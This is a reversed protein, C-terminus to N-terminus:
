CLTRRQMAITYLFHVDAMIYEIHPWDDAMQLGVKVGTLLHQVDSWRKRTDGEVAYQWATVIVPHLESM